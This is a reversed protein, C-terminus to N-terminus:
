EKLRIELLVYDIFLEFQAKIKKLSFFIIHTLFNFNLNFLFNIKKNLYMKEKIQKVIKKNNMKGRKEEEKHQNIYRQLINTKM